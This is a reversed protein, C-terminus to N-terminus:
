REDLQSACSRRFFTPEKKAPHCARSGFLAGHYEISIRFWDCPSPMIQATSTGAMNLSAFFRQDNYLPADLEALSHTAESLMVFLTM